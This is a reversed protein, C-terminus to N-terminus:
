SSFFTTGDTISETAPCEARFHCFHYWFNVLGNESVIIMGDDMSHHTAQTNTSQIIPRNGGYSVEMHRSEDREHGIRVSIHRLLATDM